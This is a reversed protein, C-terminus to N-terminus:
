AAASHSGRIPPELAAVRVIEEVQARAERKVSPIHQALRAGLIARNNFSAVVRDIVEVTGISRPDVVEDGMGCTEFVGLTKDSYAIASTPVSSGLAAITSHMRTGCFWACRAICWKIEREDLNAPPAIVRGAFESALHRRVDECAAADCDGSGNTAIVHPVLFLRADTETLLCRAIRLVAERYDAKFGFRERAADPDDYILGSVNLGAIPTSEQELFGLCQRGITAHTPAASELAFALDVGPRHRDPDFDDGLLERLSEYSRQDRAWCARAARVLGKAVRRARRSAFPGYTQPLFVLPVGNELAIQKPLVMSWFRRMGYLDTFSDGGSADLFARAGRIRQATPNGIGGLRASVRINWLSETRYLRRTHYAGIRELPRSEDIPHVGRGYGLVGIRTDPELEHIASVLSTCLANLGLNGSDPAVGHIILEDSRTNPTRMRVNSGKSQM